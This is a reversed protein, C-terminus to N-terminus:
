LKSGSIRYLRIGVHGQDGYWKLDIGDYINKYTIVEYSNVHTVGEPCVTLYYNKYSTAPAERIVSFDNKTGIWSIDTRHITIEEPVLIEERKPGSEGFPTWSDVKSFQYSVGNNRLHYVMGDTEGSFLVDPRLNFHQDSIQGKNETFTIAQGRLNHESRNIKSLLQLPFLFLTTSLLLIWRSIIYSNGGCFSVKVSSWYSLSFM